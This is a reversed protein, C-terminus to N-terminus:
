FVFHWFKKAWHTSCLHACTLLPYNQVFLNRSLLSFPPLFAPIILLHVSVANHLNVVGGKKREFGVWLLLLIHSLSVSGSTNVLMKTLKKEWFNDTWKQCVQNLDRRINYVTYAWIYTWIYPRTIGIFSHKWHFVTM